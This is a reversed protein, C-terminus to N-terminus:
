KNKQFNRKDLAEKSICLRILSCSWKSPITLGVLSELTTILEGKLLALSKQIERVFCKTWNLVRQPENWFKTVVCSHNTLQCTNLKEYGEVGFRGEEQPNPCGRTVRASTGPWGAAYLPTDPWGSVQAPDGVLKCKSRQWRDSRHGGGSVMKTIKEKGKGQTLSHIV